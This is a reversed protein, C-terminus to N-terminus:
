TEKPHVDKPSLFFFYILGPWGWGGLWEAWLELCQYSAHLTPALCSVMWWMKRVRAWHQFSWHYWESSVCGDVNARLFACTYLCRLLVHVAALGFFWTVEEVVRCQIRMIIEWGKKNGFIGINKVAPKFWPMDFLFKDQEAIEFLSTTVELTSFAALRLETSIQSPPTVIAQITRSGRLKKVYTHTSQQLVVISWCPMLCYCYCHHKGSRSLMPHKDLLGRHQRGISLVTFYLGFLWSKFIM